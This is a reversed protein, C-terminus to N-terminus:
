KKRAVIGKVWHFKTPLLKESTKYQIWYKCSKALMNRFNLTLNLYSNNIASSFIIALNSGCDMSTYFVIVFCTNKWQASGLVKPRNYVVFINLNKRKRMIKKKKQSRLYKIRHFPSLILKNKKKYFSKRLSKLSMM